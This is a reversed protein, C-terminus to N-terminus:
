LVQTQELNKCTNVELHTRLMHFRFARSTPPMCSIPIYKPITYMIERLHDLSDAKKGLKGYLEMYFKEGVEIIYEMDVDDNGVMNMIDKWSNSEDLKKFARPKGLGYTASVTDCGSIAHAFPLCERMEVSLQESIETMSVYGKKTIMIVNKHIDGNLHHLLAIFVDTDMSHVVVNDFEESKVLAEKVIPMDADGTAQKVHIGDILLKQAFLDILQQKNNSSALFNKINQPIPLSWDVKMEVSALNKKSRKQEPGKTSEIAYWDFLVSVLEINAGCEALLTQKFSNYLDSITGVKAWYIRYLWDCGDIVHYASETSVDTLSKSLILGILLLIENMIEAKNNKRMEGNDLFLSPAVGALEHSFIESLLAEDRVVYAQLRQCLQDSSM